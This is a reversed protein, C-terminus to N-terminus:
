KSCCESKKITTKIIAKIDSQTIDAPRIRYTSVFKSTRIYTHIYTHIYEALRVANVLLYRKEEFSLNLFKKNKSAPDLLTAIKVFDNFPFRTDLRALVKRKLLRIEDCESGNSTPSCVATVKARVEGPWESV